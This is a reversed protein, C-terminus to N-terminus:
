GRERRCGASKRQSREQFSSSLELWPGHYDAFQTNKLTPNLDSVNKSFEPDSWLGLPAAGEPIVHM